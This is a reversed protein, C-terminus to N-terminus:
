YGRFLETRTDLEPVGMERVLLHHLKGVMAPPGCLYYVPRDLSATELRVLNADIRGTRGAWPWSGDQPRTVSPLWRLGRWARSLEEMEEGYVLEDATHSSSLMVIPAHRGDQRAQRVMSRFPTVGIGGALLVAARQHDLVFTGFPGWLRARDGAKMAFLHIKFPSPGLRTTIALADRDGPASSISFTRSSGRPDSVEPLTLVSYQGAQFSWPLRPRGFFFTRVTPTEQRVKLLESTWEAPASEEAISAQEMM